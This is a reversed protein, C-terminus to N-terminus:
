KIVVRIVGVPDTGDTSAVFGVAKVPEIRRREPDSLKAGALARQVDVYLLATARDPMGDLAERYLAQGALTGGAAVYGRTQLEVRSGSSTVTVEPGFLKLAEALTAAKEPSATEASAALAPVDGDVSTAAVAVTAESLALLAKTMAMARQQSERLAKLIEDADEPPWDGPPVVDLGPDVPEGFGGALEAALDGVRFAGAVVSNGALGDVTSRLDSTPTAAAVGYGRFRIELGSDIARSGVIIQGRLDTLGPVGGPFLGPLEGPTLGPLEGPPLGPLEGPPLGPLEGPPLGPLEGPPLGPFSEPLRALDLWGLAVQQGPLWDVAQRFAAVSALSERAAEESAADAAAQAGNRGSAVLAYGGRVAFGFAASGKKGQIDGLGARAAADGDAALMVLQYPRRGSDLWLAVGFRNAFWPEIHNRYDAEDVDLAQFLTAKVQDLPDKGGERPFRKLLKDLKLGQGYGPTLDVRAFAAVTAPTADEPQTGSGFWLRVGAYAASGLVVAIVAAVAAFILWRRNRPGSGAVPEPQSDLVDYAAPPGDTV